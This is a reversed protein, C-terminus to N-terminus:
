AKVDSEPESMLKFVDESEISLMRSMCLRRSEKQVTWGLSSTMDNQIAETGPTSGPIFFDDKKIEAQGWPTWVFSQKEPLRLLALHLCM